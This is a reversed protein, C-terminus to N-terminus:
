VGQVHAPNCWLLEKDENLFCTTKIVQKGFTCSIKKAFRKYIGGRM